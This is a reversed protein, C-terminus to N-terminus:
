AGAPVYIIFSGTGQRRQEPGGIRVSHVMAATLRAQLVTLGNIYLM